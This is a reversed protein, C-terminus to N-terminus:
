AGTQPLIQRPGALQAWLPDIHSDEPQCVPCRGSPGLGEMGAPGGCISFLALMSGWEEVPWKERVAVRQFLEMYAKVHDGPTLM